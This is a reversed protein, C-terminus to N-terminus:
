WKFGGLVEEVEGQVRDDKEDALSLCLSLPDIRDGYVFAPRYHWLELRVAASERPVEVLDTRKLVDSSLAAYERSTGPAIMSIDSLADTGARVTVLGEPFGDLFLTRRKPNRMLPRAKEFLGKRDEAFVLKHTAHDRMALGFYELEDFAKMVSVRTYETLGVAEAISVGDNQRNLYALLIMQAAVGLSSFEKVKKTGVETMVMNLFPLYLQRGPVVFPIRRALLRLRNYSVIRKAAYVVPIGGLQESVLRVHSEVAAPTPKVLADERWLLLGFSIGDAKCRAFHYLSAVMPTLRLVGRADSVVIELGAASKLYKKVDEIIRAM